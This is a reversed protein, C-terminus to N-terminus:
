SESLSRTLPSTPIAPKNSNKLSKIVKRKKVGLPHLKIDWYDIEVIKLLVRRNQKSVGNRIIINTWGNNSKIIKQLRHRGSKCNKEWANGDIGDFVHLNQEAVNRQVFHGDGHGHVPCDNWDHGHYCVALKPFNSKVKLQM